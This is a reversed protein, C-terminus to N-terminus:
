LTGTRQFQGNPHIKGEDFQMFVGFIATPKSVVIYRHQIDDEDDSPIGGEIGVLLSFKILRFDSLLTAVTATNNNGIEPTAPFSLKTREWADLHTVTRIVAQRFVKICIMWCLSQQRYNSAWPYICAATYDDHTLRCLSHDM